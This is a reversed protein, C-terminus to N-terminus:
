SDPPPPGGPDACLLSGVNKQLWQRAIRNYVFRWARLACVCVCMVCAVRIANCNSHVEHQHVCICAPLSLNLGGRGEGREREREREETTKGAELDFCFWRIMNSNIDKSCAM